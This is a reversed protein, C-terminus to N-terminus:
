YEGSYNPGYAPTAKCKNWDFMCKGKPSGPPGVPLWTCLDMELCTTNVKVKECGIDGKSCVLSPIPVDLIPMCFGATANFVIGCWQCCLAADCSMADTMNCTLKPKPTPAPPAPTDQIAEEEAIKAALHEMALEKNRQLKEAPTAPTAKCRDWDYVCMGAATGPPGFPVWACQENADCSPEGLLTKCDAPLKDCTFAPNPGMPIIPLCFGVSANFSIACWNCCTDASCASSENYLSCNSAPSPPVPPVTAALNHNAIPIAVAAAVLLAFVSLSATSSTM